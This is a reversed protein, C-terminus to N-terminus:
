IDQNSPATAHGYGDYKKDGIDYSFIGGHALTKTALAAVGVFISYKM